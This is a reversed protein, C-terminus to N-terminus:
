FSEDYFKYQYPLTLHNKKIVKNNFHKYARALKEDTKWLPNEFSDPYTVPLLSMHNEFEVNRIPAYEPNHTINVYGRGDFSGNTKYFRGNPREYLPCVAELLYEKTRVIRSIGPYSYIVPKTSESDGTLFKKLSIGQVSKGEPITANAFDVITPLVDTFDMLPDVMGRQKIGKGSVIFPVHVGYEVGKGKASSTTGNDSSFIVITDKEQNTDKLCKVIKGVCHDVYRIQSAFIKNGKEDGKRYHKNSPTEGAAVDLPTVCHASHPLVMTYFALFPQEKNEHDRITDCIFDSLLDPGYDTPTTTQLVGDKILMPKWYRSLIPTKLLAAIEWHEDPVLKINLAKEVNKANAHWVLYSDIGYFESNGIPTPGIPNHWKGASVVYYGSDHLIKTFYPIEKSLENQTFNSYNLKNDYSGTVPAYNGTKFMARAPGCIAESYCTKFALGEEALKDIHPTISERDRVGYCGFEEFGSDDALIVVINPRNEDANLATSIFISLVILFLKFTLLKNIM